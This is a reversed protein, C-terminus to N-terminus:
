DFDIESGLDLLDSFLDGPSYVDDSNDKPMQTKEIVTNEKIFGTEDIHKLTIGEASLVEGILLTRHCEQPKSESCMIAIDLEKEYATKLREIGTLFFDKKKVLEYDIRGDEGYCTPDKPRGGLTDGMWVYRIGNKELLQELNNRSFQPHFRSFPVSRVDVLYYIGYDKLLSLFVEAKRSGHGITFIPKKM